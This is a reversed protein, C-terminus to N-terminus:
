HVSLSSQPSRLSPLSRTTGPRGPGTSRLQGPRLTHNLLRQSSGSPMPLLYGPGHSVLGAGASRGHPESGSISSTRSKGRSMSTAGLSFPRSPQLTTGGGFHAVSAGGHSATGSGSGVGHLMGGSAFGSKLATGSSLHAMPRPSTQDALSPTPAGASVTPGSAKSRLTETEAATVNFGSARSGWSANGASKTAGWSSSSGSGFNGQGAIWRSSSADSKAKAADSKSKTADSGSQGAASGSQGAASESQPAVAGSQSAATRTTLSAAAIWIMVFVFTRTPWTIM